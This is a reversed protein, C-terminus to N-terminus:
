CILYCLKNMDEKKCLIDPIFKSSNPSHLCIAHKDMCRCGRPRQRVSGNDYPYCGSGSDIVPEEPLCLRTHSHIHYALCVRGTGNHLWEDGM